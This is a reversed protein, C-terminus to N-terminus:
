NFFRLNEDIHSGLSRESMLPKSSSEISVEEQQQNNVITKKSITNVGKYKKLESKLYSLSLHSYYVDLTNSHAHGILEKIVTSDIGCYRALSVFTKRFTYATVKKYDTIGIHMLFIKVARCFIESSSYQLIRGEPYDNKIKGIIERLDEHLPIEMLLNTKTSLLRMLMKELDINESRLNYIDVPRLGTYFLFYVGVRLSFNNEPLMEFIFEVEREDFIVKPKFVKKPILSKNIRIEPTYEYEYLFRLFSKLFVIQLRKTNNSINRNNLAFLFDEVNERSIMSCAVDKPFYSHFLNFFRNLSRKSNRSINQKLRLYHEVVNGILYKRGGILIIERRKKQLRFDIERAMKRAISFNKESPNLGTSKSTRKGTLPNYYYITIIENRLRLFAM